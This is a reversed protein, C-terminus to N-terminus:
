VRRLTRRIQRQATRRYVKYQSKRPVKIVIPTSLKVTPSGAEPSFTTAVDAYGAYSVTAPWPGRTAPVTLSFEGAANTVTSIAKDNVKVSVVSGPLPGRLGEVRGKIVTSAAAATHTTDPSATHTPLVRLSRGAVSALALSRSAQLGLLATSISLVALPFFPRM